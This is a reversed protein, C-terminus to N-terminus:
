KEVGEREAWLDARVCWAGYGDPDSFRSPAAEVLSYKLRISGTNTM